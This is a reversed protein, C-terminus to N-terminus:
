ESDNLSSQCKSLSSMNVCACCSSNTEKYCCRYIELRYEFWTKAKTDNQILPETKRAQLNPFERRHCQFFIDLLALYMFGAHNSFFQWKSICCSSYDETLNLSLCYPELLGPCFIPQYSPINWPGSKKCAWIVARFITSVSCNGPM